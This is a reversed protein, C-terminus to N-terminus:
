DAGPAKDEEAADWRGNRRKMAENEARKRELIAPDREKLYKDMTVWRLRCVRCVLYPGPNPEFAGTGKQRKGAYVAKRALCHPCQTYHKVWAGSQDPKGHRKRHQKQAFRSKSRCLKCTRWRYGEPLDDGCSTCQQRERRMQRIGRQRDRCEVCTTEGPELGPQGCQPCIGHYAREARYQRREEYAAEQADSYHKKNYRKM